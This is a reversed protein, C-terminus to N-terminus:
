CDRYLNHTQIYNLTPEALFAGADERNNCLVDRIDHSSIEVLPMQMLEIRAGYKDQLYRIQEAMKEESNIECRCAALVNCSRLLREPKMWTEIAFLSDAGIIFYFTHNPYVERLHEMTEYSYSIEKRKAEYRELKFQPIGEITEAVMELRQTTAAGLTNETKHPPHGNPMFWVEDLGFREYAYEGLMLHGKHIPDFTGGIIGINM